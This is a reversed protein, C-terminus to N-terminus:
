WWGTTAQAQTLLPCPQLLFSDPVPLPRALPHRFLAEPVWRSPVGVGAAVAAAAM